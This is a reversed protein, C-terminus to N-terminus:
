RKEITYGCESCKWKEFVDEGRSFPLLFGNDCKPCSPFINNDKTQKNEQEMKLYLNIGQANIFMGGAPNSGAEIPSCGVTIVM